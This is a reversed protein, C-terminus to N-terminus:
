SKATKIPVTMVAQGTIVADGNEIQMVVDIAAHFIDGENQVSKVIGSIILRQNPRVMQRFRVTYRQFRAGPPSQTELFRAALGMNLMGHAIVGPLGFRRAQEEDYHIPNYDGSAGAYRVIQERTILITEPGLIDKPKWM